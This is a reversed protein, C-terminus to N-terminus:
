ESLPRPGQTVPEVLAILETALELALAFFETSQVVTQHTADAAYVMRAKVGQAQLRAVYAESFKPLTNDDKSGVLLAIRTAVPVKAAEAMPSLSNPWYGSRGVSVQRWQRWPGEDCPCAVVMYADASSPFRAALLATMASGGSHGALLIKKGPHAQRLHALASAIIEVNGPTYDDDQNRNYGDSRGLESLYGPRQLNVTTIKLKESLNYAPGRNARLEIRGSNDGHMFVALVNPVPNAPEHLRMILCHKANGVHLVADAPKGNPCQAEPEGAWAAQLAAAAIFGAFVAKLFAKM